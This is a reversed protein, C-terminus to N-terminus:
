RYVGILIFSMGTGRKYRGQVYGFLAYGEQRVIPSWNNKDKQGNAVAM